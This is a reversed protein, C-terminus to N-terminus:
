TPSVGASTISSTLAMPKTSPFLRLAAPWMLTVPPERHRDVDWRKHEFPKTLKFLGYIIQSLFDGSGCVADGRGSIAEVTPELFVSFVIIDACCQIIENRILWDKLPPQSVGVRGEHM